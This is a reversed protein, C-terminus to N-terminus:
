PTYVLNGNIDYVRYGLDKHKDAERRANALGSFAGLQSNSDDASKRVRYSIKEETKTEEPNEAAADEPLVEPIDEVIIEITDNPKNEYVLNEGNTYSKIISDITGNSKLINLAICINNSIETDNNSLMIVYDNYYNDTFSVNSGKTASTYGGMSMHYTGDGTGSIADDASMTSIEIEMDLERAIAKAIEVDTGILNGDKKYAFPENNSVTAFKLIERPKVDEPFEAEKGAHTKYLESKSNYLGLKRGNVDYAIWAKGDTYASNTDSEGYCIPNANGDEFIVFFDESNFSFEEKVMDTIIKQATNTSIIGNEDTLERLFDASTNDDEFCNEGKGSLHESMKEFYSINISQTRNELIEKNLFSLPLYSIELPHITDTSSDLIGIYYITDSGEASKASFLVAKTNGKLNVESFLSVSMMDLHSYERSNELPTQLSKNSIATCGTLICITLVVIMCISMSKKM